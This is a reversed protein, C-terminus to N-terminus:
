HTCAPIGTIKELGSIQHQDFCEGSVVILKEPDHAGWLARSEALAEEKSNSTIFFQGCLQCYCCRDSM